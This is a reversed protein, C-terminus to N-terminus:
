DSILQLNLETWVRTCLNKNLANNKYLHPIKKAFKKDISILSEITRKSSFTDLVWEKLESKIWSEIPSGIGVKFRRTRIEDSMKGRMSERLILKNFGKGVKSEIPLSFLFTVLRWDMFPMRIEVGNMMGARDFDRFITPLTKVFTEYYVIQEIVPLSSFDYNDGLCDLDASPIWGFGESRNKVFNGFRKKIRAFSNFNSAILDNIYRNAVNQENGGYTPIIINKLEEIKVLRKEKIYQNLLSYLMPRYGYLMEDVGHGDMSVCIGDKRMGRYIGSVSTIPATSLADFHVTDNMVKDVLNVYDDELFIAEGNTFEIAKKAFEKEDNILGPFTAVYAKQSGPTTRELNEKKIIDFVTSYVSSSDLGGSLATAIPVDSILRIRCADRFLQYFEDTHEKFNAGLPRIHDSINWWRKQMHGKGDAEVELYHGPMIQNISKYISHGLGVIQSDGLEVKLNKYNFSRQFNNLYKFARTESAFAFVRGPIWLYYLPKIGFRDRCLILKNEAKDWIAFAWMGNFKNLAHIGWEQWANLIVETDSNSKFFYGKQELSHKIDQFNFVEGNYTIAYRNNLSHMPQKGMESLDLISLRRHGLGLTDNYFLEYGAGDPGRSSISDTFRVLDEHLIAEGNLNWIGTVGCM